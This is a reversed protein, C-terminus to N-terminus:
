FWGLFGVKLSFSSIKFFGLNGLLFQFINQFTQATIILYLGKKVHSISIESGATWRNLRTGRFFLKVKIKRVVNEKNVNGSKGAFV